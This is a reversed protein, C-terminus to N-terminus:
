AVAAAHAAIRTSGLWTNYIAVEDITGDAHGEAAPVSNAGIFCLATSTLAGQADATSSVQTGNIFIKWDTGDWGAAIHKWQGTSWGSITWVTKNDNVGFSSVQLQPTGSNGLVYLGYGTNGGFGHTILAHYDSGTPFTTPKYLCELTIQGIINLASPTGLNVRQSSARAFLVAANGTLGGTQNLTPSNVYTGDLANGSSDAATTGSTEALRWYGVPSDALVEASYSAAAAGKAYFYGM